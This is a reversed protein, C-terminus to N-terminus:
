KKLYAKYRKPFDRRRNVKSNIRRKFNGLTIGYQNKSYPNLITLKGNLDRGGCKIKKKHLSSYGRYIFSSFIVTSVL